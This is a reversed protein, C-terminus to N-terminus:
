CAFCTCCAFTKSGEERMQDRISGQRGALLTSSLRAWSVFTFKVTIVLHVAEGMDILLIEQCGFSMAVSALRRPSSELVLYISM